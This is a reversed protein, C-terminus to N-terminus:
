YSAHDDCREETQAAAVAPASEEAFPCRYSAPKVLVFDCDLADVLKGTLTGVLATIGKRHTLAGLVLVDYHKPAAFGVLTEEPKGELVHVRDPQVHFEGALQRLTASRRKHEAEEGARRDSYLVELAAGCGLSLYEGTQLIERALGATEWESVDVAAAFRPQTGWAQGRILMLPVPCTRALQWDNADWSFRRLPHDSAAAKIVLDPRSQLVKHVIGEYLPSECAVDLSIRVDDAVVSQRLSELYRRGEAVCSQRARETGSSDYAHSLAYAHQADCLFLEVKAGFHRALAMAKDMVQRPEDIPDIVVLISTLKEMRIMSAPRRSSRFAHSQRVGLSFQTLNPPPM